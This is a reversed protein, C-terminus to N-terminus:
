FFLRRAPWYCRSPIHRGPVRPPRAVPLSAVLPILLASLGEERPFRRVVVGGGIWVLVGYLCAFSVLVGADWRWDRYGRARAQEVRELPLEHVSAVADM